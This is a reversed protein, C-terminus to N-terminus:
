KQTCCLIPGMVGGIAGSAGVMPVASDFNFLIHTLSAVIGCLFYFKLFSLRGMADEVNDGFVWLFWMNGLLHMWSGHMFMATVFGFIGVGDDRPYSSQSMDTSFNNILDAPILGFKCVSQYLVKDDGFGQFFVM